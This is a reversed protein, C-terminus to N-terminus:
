VDEDEYDEEEPNDIEEPPPAFGIVRPSAEECGLEQIEVQSSAIKVSLKAKLVEIGTLALSVLSDAM